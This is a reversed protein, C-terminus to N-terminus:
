VHCQPWTHLLTRLLSHGLTFCVACNLTGLRQVALRNPSLAANAPALRSVATKHCLKARPTCRNDDDGPGRTWITAMELKRGYGPCGPTHHHRVADYCPRARHVVRAIRKVLPASMTEGALSIHPYRPLTTHQSRSQGLTGQPPPHIVRYRTSITRWDRRTGPLHTWTGHLRGLGVGHSLM